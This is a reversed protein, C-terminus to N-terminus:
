FNNISNFSDRFSVHLLNREGEEGTITEVHHETSETSSGEAKEKDKKQEADSGGFPKM